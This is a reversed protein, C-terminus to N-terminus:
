YDREDNNLNNEDYGKDLGDRDPLDKFCEKCIITDYSEPKKDNRIKSVEIHILECNSGCWTCLVKGFIIVDEKFTTEDNM